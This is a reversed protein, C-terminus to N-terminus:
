PCSANVVSDDFRDCDYDLDDMATFMRCFRCAARTDFCVWLEPAASCSGPFAAAADVGHCASDLKSELTMTAKGVKKDNETSDFCAALEPGTVALPVKKGALAGKKCKLFSGLRAQFLKEVIGLADAQCSAISDDTSAAANLDAGFLSEMLDLEAQQSAANIAAASSFGFPPAPSCEDTELGTTAQMAAGIKGGGDETLCGQPDAEAGMAAADLCSANAAGQLRAIKVGAKNAASVCKAEDKSLARVVVSWSSDPDTEKLIKVDDGDVVRSKICPDPSATNAAGTCDEIVTGDRIVDLGSSDVRDPIASSDVSLVIVLPDDVNTAAPAEIQLQAGVVQYGSPAPPDVASAISVTGANPTTIATQVPLQPTAGQNLPDTSVTSGGSVNQSVPTITCDAECGDGDTADGDDCQENGAVVGNGCEPPDTGDPLLTAVFFERGSFGGDAMGTVTVTAGDFSVDHARGDSPGAFSRIWAEAGTAESLKIVNAWRLDAAYLTASVYIGGSGDLALDFAGTGYSNGADLTYRWEEAGTGGDIRMVVLPNGAVFMRGAAIVDGGSTIGLSTVINVPDARVDGEDSFTWEVHGDTANLKKVAFATTGGSALTGGVFVSGDAGVALSSLPATDLNATGVEGAPAVEQTWVVSGDVASLKAITWTFLNQSGEAYGAAVVAGTTLALQEGTAAASTGLDPSTWLPLLTSTDYKVVRFPSSGGTVYLDNGDPVFRTGAFTGPLVSGDAPDLRTGGAVLTGNVLAAANPRSSQQAVATQRWMEHGDAASLKVVAPGASDSTEPDDALQGSVYLGGAGDDAIAFGMEEGLNPGVGHLRTDWAAAPDGGIGLTLAGAMATVRLTVQFARM